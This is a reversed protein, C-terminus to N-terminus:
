TPNAYEFVKTGAIKDHWTDQNKDWLMWLFGLGLPLASLLILLTRIVAQRTTMIHGDPQLKIVGTFQQGKTQGNMATMVATYILAGIIPISWFLLSIVPHARVDYLFSANGGLGFVALSLVIPVVSWMAADILSALLRSGFSAAPTRVPDIVPVAEYDEDHTARLADPPACTECFAMGQPTKMACADCLRMGCGACSTTAERNAHIACAIKGRMSDPHLPRKCRICKEHQNDNQTGCQPCVV